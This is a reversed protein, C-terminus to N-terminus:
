EASATEAPSLDWRTVADSTSCPEGEGSAQGLKEDLVPNQASFVGWPSECGPVVWAHSMWGSGRNSKFGGADACEEETTTTDGIVGGERSICLGIHRHYHDNDGTFGVEPEVDGDKTIFYSLGVINSEEDNGDYLLMEPEAVDFEGDVLDFKMWHSAIGPLYPAVRVYGAAIADSAKPYEMAVDHAVELEEQLQECQEQETLHTWIQPGLHGGAGTDDPAEVDRNPDLSQLWQEYENQPLDTLRVILSAAELEGLGGSMDGPDEGLTTGTTESGDTPDTTGTTDTADSGHDMGEMDGHDMTEREAGLTGALEADEYFGVPNVSVDCAEAHERDHGDGATSSPAATTTPGDAGADVEPDSSSSCAGATLVLAAAVAVLTRRPRTALQHSTTSM